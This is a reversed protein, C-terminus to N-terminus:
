PPSLVVASVITLITDFTSKFLNERMWALPGVALIPPPKVPPEDYNVVARDNPDFTTAM